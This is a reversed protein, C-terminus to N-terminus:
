KENKRTIKTKTKTTNNTHKNQILSNNHANNIHKATYIHKTNKKLNHNHIITTTNLINIKTPM